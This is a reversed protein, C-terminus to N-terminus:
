EELGKPDGCRLKMNRLILTYSQKVFDFQFFFFNKLFPHSKGSGLVDLASTIGLLHGGRAQSGRIGGNAGLDPVLMSLPGAHPAARGCAAESSSAGRVKAGLRSSMSVRLAESEM